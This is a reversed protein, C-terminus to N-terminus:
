SPGLYELHSTRSLHCNTTPKDANSELSELPDQLHYDTQSECQQLPHRGFAQDVFCEMVGLLTDLLEEREEDSLPFEQALRRYKDFDVSM